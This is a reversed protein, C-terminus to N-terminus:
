AHRVVLRWGEDEPSDVLSFTLPIRESLGLLTALGDLRTPITTASGLLRMSPEMSTQSRHALQDTQARLSDSREAM